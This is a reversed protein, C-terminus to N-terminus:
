TRGWSGDGDNDSYEIRTKSVAHSCGHMKPTIIWGEQFTSLRMMGYIRRVQKAYKEAKALRGHDPLELKRAM